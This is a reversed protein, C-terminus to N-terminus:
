LADQPSFHSSFGYFRSLKLLSHAFNEERISVTSNQQTLRDGLTCPVGVPRHWFCLALNHKKRHLLAVPPLPAPLVGRRTCTCPGPMTQPLLIPVALLGMLMLPWLPITELCSSPLVLAKRQEGCFQCHPGSAFTCYPAGTGQIKMM